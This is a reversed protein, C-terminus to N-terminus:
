VSFRRKRIYNYIVGFLLILIVPIVTNLIKYYNSKSKVDGANLLRLKFQKSRLSILGKRGNVMYDVCNLIFTKNGFTRNTYYDFGLAYPKQYSPSYNNKLIDGDSVVLLRGEKSGKPTFQGMGNQKIEEPNIRNLLASNFKGEVLVALNQIGMRFARPNMQQTLTLSIQAPHNVVRTYPSSTLLITKKLQNNDKPNLTDITNAFRFWLAPINNVIPHDSYPTVVPYFPWKALSGNQNGGYSSKMLPIYHCNYDEVLNYNVRIGYKFMLDDLNLKHNGTFGQGGKLSDMEAILNDVCYLINGGNVLYQDLKFKDYDTFAGEPKPIIIAAYNELYGQKVTPFDIFDVEYNDRLSNSIDALYIPQLEDNGQLIGIKPKSIITLKKIANAFEYELQAISRNLEEEPSADGRQPQMIMAISETGGLSVVAGPVIVKSSTQDEENVQLETPVLGKSALQKFLNNKTAADPLDEPNEFQYQIKNGAITRFEDLMEKSADSLRKVGAPLDKGTLYVKIYVVDKLEKLLKITPPSITFRKDETLDIRKHFIGFIFNIVFIIGILLVSQLIVQNKYKKSKNDVM